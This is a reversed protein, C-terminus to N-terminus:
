YVIVKAEPLLLKSASESEWSEGEWEMILNHGNLTVVSLEDQGTWTLMMEDEFAINDDILPVIDPPDKALV